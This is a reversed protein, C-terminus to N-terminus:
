DREQFHSEIRKTRMQGDQKRREYNEKNLVVQLEKRRQKEMKEYCKLENEEKILMLESAKTQNEAIKKKSLSLANRLLRVRNRLISCDRHIQYNATKIQDYTLEETGVQQIANSLM